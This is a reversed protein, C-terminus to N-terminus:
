HKKTEPCPNKWAMPALLYNVFQAQCAAITYKLDEVYRADGPLRAIVCNRIKFDSINCVTSAQAKAFLEDLTPRLIGFLRDRCAKLEKSKDACWLTAGTLSLDLSYRFKEIRSITEDLVCMRDDHDSIACLAEGFRPGGITSASKEPPFDGRAKFFDTLCDRTKKSAYKCVAKADELRLNSSLADLVCARADPNKIQCLFQAIEIRYQSNPKGVAKLFDPKEFEGRICAGLPRM